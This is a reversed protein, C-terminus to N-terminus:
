DDLTSRPISLRIDLVNSEGLSSAAGTPILKSYMRYFETPNADAWIALRATNGILAFADDFATVVQRRSFEAKRQSPVKQGEKLLELPALDLYFESTNEESTEQSEAPLYEQRPTPSGPTTGPKSVEKSATM